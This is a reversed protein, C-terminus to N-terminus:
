RRLDAVGASVASVPAFASQSAEAIIRALTTKGAGLEGRLLVVAGPKLKRGLREGLAITEEESSLKLRM